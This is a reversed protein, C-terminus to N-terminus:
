PTAEGDPLQEQAARGRAKTTMLARAEDVDLPLHERLHWLVRGTLVCDWPASHDRAEIGPEPATLGFRAAVAFLTQEGKGKGVVGRVIRLPDIVLGIAAELELWRDGLERRLIPLDSTLGNYAVIAQVDHEACLADIGEAPTRGTKANKATIFPRGRVHNDWIGHVRSAYPNIKTGPDFLARRHTILKGERMIVVALEIIKSEGGFGTTEVDIVLWPSTIWSQETDM